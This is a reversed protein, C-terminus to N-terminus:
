QIRGLTFFVFFVVGVMAAAIGVTHLRPMLVAVLISFVTAAALSMLAVIALTLNM